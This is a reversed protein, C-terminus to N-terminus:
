NGSDRLTEMRQLPSVLVDSREKDFAETQVVLHHNDCEEEKCRIKCALEAARDMSGTRVSFVKCIFLRLSRKSEPEEAFHEVSNRCRDEFNGDSQEQQTDRNNREVDPDNAEDHGHRCKDTNCVCQEHQELASRHGEPPVQIRGVGAGAQRCRQNHVERVTDRCQVRDRVPSEAQEGDEDYFVQLHLAADFDNDTANDAEGCHVYGEM